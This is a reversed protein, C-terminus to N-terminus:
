WLGLSPPWKEGATKGQTMASSKASSDVWLMFSTTWASPASAGRTSLPPLCSRGSTTRQTTVSSRSPSVCSHSGSNIM